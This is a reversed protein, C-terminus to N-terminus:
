GAADSIGLAKMRRQFTRMNLGLKEAARGKRWRCEELAHLIYRKEVKRMAEELPEDSCIIAPDDVCDATDGLMDLASDGFASYRDLFNHLERINGPWEYHEMAYRVQPPINISLDRKKKWDAILLPLDDLRERLPPIRIVLVHLRYFFDSRMTKDRVMKALDQNTASILRFNSSRATHSGVPTYTKNELTRLLKVQLHLPLEGVEDLFLTGGNAAAVYGDKSVNAGTFAGRTHGFFESEMLNEPIAGCNIPVYPGRKGSLAHIARAAVDKGSGTEGYIVVSMSSGAAKRILEYVQKMKPNKGIIGHFGTEDAGLSKIRKNEERLSIEINKQRSVDMMVGELYWLEGDDGYVGEGQDWVWKLTGDAAKIRYTISYPKHAVVNDYEEARQKALDDPHTIKEFINDNTELLQRPSMGVLERCGDSVFDLTYEFHTTGGTDTVKEVRCRYVLGPIHSILRAYSDEASFAFNRVESM